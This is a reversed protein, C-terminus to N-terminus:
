TNEAGEENKTKENQIRLTHMQSCLAELTDKIVQKIQPMIAEM